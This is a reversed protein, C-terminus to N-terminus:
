RVADTPPQRRCFREMRPLLARLSLPFPVKQKQLLLEQPMELDAVSLKWWASHTYVPSGRSGCVQPPVHNRRLPAEVPNKVFVGIDEGSALRQHDSVLIRGPVLLLMKANVPQSSHPFAARQFMVRVTRQRISATSTESRPPGAAGTSHAPPGTKVSRKRKANALKDMAAFLWELSWLPLEPQWHEVVVRRASGIVLSPKVDSCPLAGQTVCRPGRWSDDAAENNNGVRPVAQQPKRKAGDTLEYSSKERARKMTTSPPTPLLDM